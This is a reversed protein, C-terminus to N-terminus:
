KLWTSELLTLETGEENVIKHRCIVNNEARIIETSVKITEGYTTEKEYTVKINKLVYDLVIDKPMTELAWAVYKVNNVHVNTDIDSYRVQFSKESDVTNIEPINPIDLSANNSNDIGYAVYMDETIRIPRRRNTNILIWVSNAYGIKNGKSDLIEYKRYAYFKRFSHAFTKVKINENLLPYSEMTIDWKYLVWAMNNEKLHGIGVGLIESQYMAMDGLYDIISTILARKHIDVEYYHINYDRDTVAPIRIM